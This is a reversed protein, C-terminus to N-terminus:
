RELETPVTLLLTLPQSDKWKEYTTFFFLKNKLIPGGFSGGYIKLNTGRGATEDAGDKRILTPDGFANFKPSRGHAFATGHYENTGSKMNLVIIGGASYGYEADVANKQYTVEQVGDLNPTYSTKFSTTLPVGDLLVDNGRATGGGADIDNAFAHHYPRNENATTGTGPTVTPDLTSINYPNRGRIPLQDIIKNDITLSSSSSNFEVQVPPAEVTITESVGGAELKVDSTVDGRQRILVNKQEAKKFGSQEVIITYTGPDVFDFIYHGDGNTPRTVEVGTEDNRLVVQAGPIAAGNIDTVVGQVKGRYDQAATLPAVVFIITILSISWLCKIDWRSKPLNM